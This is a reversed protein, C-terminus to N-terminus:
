GGSSVIGGGLQVEEDTATIADATTISGTCAAFTALLVVVVLKRVM